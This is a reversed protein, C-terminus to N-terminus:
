SISQPSKNAGDCPRADANAHPVVEFLSAIYRDIDEIDGTEHDGFEEHSDQGQYPIQEVEITVGCVVCVGMMKKSIHGSIDAGNGFWSPLIVGSFIESVLPM